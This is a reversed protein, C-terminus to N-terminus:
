AREATTQHTAALLFGGALALNKFFSNFEANYAAAPASLFNHFVVAALVCFGALVLAAPKAYKNTMIALGCAIEVVITGIAVIEAMPLGKSTIYGVTGGFGMIKRVGAIVFLLGLLIRGLWVLNSNNM